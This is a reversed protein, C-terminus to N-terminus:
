SERVLEKEAKEVDRRTVTMRRDANAIKAAREMLRAHYDCISAGIQFQAEVNFKTTVKM